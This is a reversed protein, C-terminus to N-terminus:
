TEDYELVFQFRARRLHDGFQIPSADAVDHTSTVIDQRRNADGALALHDARIFETEQGMKNFTNEGGEENSGISSVVTLSGPRVELVERCQSLTSLGSSLSSGLVSRTPLGAESYM